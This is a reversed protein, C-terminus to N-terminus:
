KWAGALAPLTDAVIEQIAQRDAATLHAFEPKPDAGSLIVKLRGAVYERAECPLGAFSKSYILYSLPYKFMRKSLDFQRLSRGRRDFPGRKEFDAAFTSNGKVCSKLPAEESYLLAELLPECAYGVRRRSGETLPRLPTGLARNIEDSQAVALRTEHNARTLLNHLTTQYELVMLAVIDSTDSLYPEVEFRKGLDTLNAGRDRLQKMDPNPDDTFSVNGMHRLEGHTGTVYWGGWREEFPSRYTTRFGGLNYRPQGDAGAYLSRVTVGPVGLTLGNGDHCQLCNDTQRQFRPPKADDQSLTYFNSGLQPDQSAVELVEGGQVWGLYVDDNFYLARPSRPSIWQRQFSTKSFVLSQSSAPIDLHELVAKLYGHAGDFRLKTRGSALCADLEAVPDAPKSRSYNIPPADYSAQQRPSGLAAGAILLLVLVLRPLTRM